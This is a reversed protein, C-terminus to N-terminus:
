SHNWQTEDDPASNEEARGTAVLYFRLIKPPTLSSEELGKCIRAFIASDMPEQPILKGDKVGRLLKDVEEIRAKRYVVYSERKVFPHDGPYLLCTPDYPLGQKISSLSVMLVAKVGDGVDAPDTLLVFLHRRDPDNEPGSPVLLTALKLPLFLSM